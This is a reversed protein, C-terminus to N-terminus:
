EPYHTVIDRLFKSSVSISYLPNDGCFQFIEAILLTQESWDKLNKILLTQKEKINRIHSINLTRYEEMKRIEPILLTQKLSKLNM